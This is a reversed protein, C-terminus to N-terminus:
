RKSVPAVAKRKGATELLVAPRVSLCHAVARAERESGTTNDYFVEWGNGDSYPDVLDMYGDNYGGGGIVVTGSPCGVWVSDDWAAPFTVWESEVRVIRVVTVGESDVDDAFGAPKGAVESWTIQQDALIGPKNKIYGWYPQVINSPLLGQRNTAVLKGARVGRKNTYRVAHKGDVRDANGAKATPEVASGPEAQALTGATVGALAGVIVAVLATSLMQRM